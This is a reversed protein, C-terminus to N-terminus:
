MVDTTAGIQGSVHFFRGGAERVSVAVSANMGEGVYLMKPEFEPVLIKRGFAFLEGPVAPVGLALVAAAIPVAVIVGLRAIVHLPRGGAAFSGTLRSALMVVAATAAVAILIRQAWQTGVAPILIMSFALAGVIAGVTNAAYVRGVARGTDQHRPAAAALALPFSAGWLCAAPLVAWLCRALDLQFTVWPNTTLLPNVPWYPLWGSISVGAWALAAVLLVQCWGLAARPDRGNRAIFSGASSGLGLGL